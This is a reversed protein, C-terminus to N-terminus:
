ISLSEKYIRMLKRVLPACNLDAAKGGGYWHEPNDCALMYGNTEVTAPLGCNCASKGCATYANALAMMACLARVEPAPM